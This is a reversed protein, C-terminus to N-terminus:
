IIQSQFYNICVNKVNDIVNLENFDNVIIKDAREYWASRQRYLQELQDLRNSNGDFLPRNKFNTQVNLQIPNVKLYISLSREKILEINNFFCPTGGGMAIISVQSELLELMFYRELCRFEEQGYQAWFQSISMGCQFEFYDDLDQVSLGFDKELVRMIWTKGSGPM